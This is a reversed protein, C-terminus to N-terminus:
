NAKFNALVRFIKAKRNINKIACGISAEGADEKVYKQAYNEKV